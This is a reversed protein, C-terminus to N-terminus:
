QRSSLAVRAAESLQEPTYQMHVNTPFSFQAGSIKAILVVAKDCVRLMKPFGPPPDGLSQVPNTYTLLKELPTLLWAQHIYEALEFAELDREKLLYQVFEQQKKEVGLRALAAMCAQAVDIDTNQHCFTVLTETEPQAAIKGMLLVLQRQPPTSTIKDLLKVLIPGGIEGHHKALQDIATVSIMNNEQEAAEMLVNYADPHAIEGLALIAIMRVATEKHKVLQTLEPIAGPGQTKAMEIATLDQAIIADSIQSM